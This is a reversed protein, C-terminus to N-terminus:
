KYSSFYIIRCNHLTIDLIYFFFSYLWKRVKRQTPHISSNCDLLDVGGKTINYIAIM